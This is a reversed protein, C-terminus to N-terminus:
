VDPHNFQNFVVVSHCPQLSPPYLQRLSSVLPSYKMLKNVNNFKNAHHNFGSSFIVSVLACILWSDCADAESCQFIHLPDKQHLYLIM